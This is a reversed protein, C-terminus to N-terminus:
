KKESVKMDGYISFLIVKEEGEIIFHAESVKNGQRIVYLYVEGDGVEINEDDEIDILEFGEQKFMKQIDSGSFKEKVVLMKGEEFDGTIWKEKGNFDIDMDFFDIMSKSLSMSFADTESKLTKYIKESDGKSAFTSISIVLAIILSYTKM